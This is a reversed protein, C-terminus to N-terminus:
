HTDCGLNQWLPPSKQGAACKHNTRAQLSVLMLAGCVKFTVWPKWWPCVCAAAM